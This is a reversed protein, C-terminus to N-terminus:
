KSYTGKHLLRGLFVTLYIKNAARTPRYAGNQLDQCCSLDDLMFIRIESNFINYIINKGIYSTGM